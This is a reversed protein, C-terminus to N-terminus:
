STGGPQEVRKGLRRDVWVLSGALLATAYLGFFHGNSSPRSLIWPPPVMVHLWMALVIWKTVSPAVRPVLNSPHPLRLNALAWFVTELSPRLGAVIAYAGILGSSGCAVMRGVSGIEFINYVIDAVLVLVLM